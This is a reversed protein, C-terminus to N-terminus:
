LSRRRHRVENEAVVAAGHAVDDEVAGLLAVREVAFEHEGDPSASRAAASSGATWQTTRRPSPAINEDPMSRPESAPSASPDRCTAGTGPARAELRPVEGLLHGLRDDALDVAGAQAPRHLDRQGAIQARDRGVRHDAQGLRPDPQDRVDAPRRPQRLDDAEAPGLLQDHGALQDAAVSASRIPSALRTAGASSSSAAVCASTSSSSAHAGTATPSALRAISAEARGASARRELELHRHLLAARARRVVRLARAREALLARRLESAGSGRLSGVLRPRRARARPGARRRLARARRGAIERALAILEATTAGGRNVLALTHKDSIGVRGDGYGSPFGAREILWAASTKIAATPSPSRPRAAPTAPARRCAPSAGPDLIPNTFFSGASVSDPDAPDIVMGKGRRLALM